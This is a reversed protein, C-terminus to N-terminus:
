IPRLVPGLTVGLAIVAKTFPEPRRCHHALWPSPGADPLRGPVFGRPPPPALTALNNHPNPERPSNNSALRPHNPTTPLIHTPRYGATHIMSAPSLTIQSTSTRRIHSAIKDFM